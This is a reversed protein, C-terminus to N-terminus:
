SNVIIRYTNEIKNKIYPPPRDATFSEINHRRIRGKLLEKPLLAGDFCRPPELSNALPPGYVLQVTHDMVSRLRAWVYPLNENTEHEMIRRAEAM